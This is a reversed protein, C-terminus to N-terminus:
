GHQEGPQEKPLTNEGRQKGELLANPKGGRSAAAIEIAGRVSRGPHTAFFYDRAVKPLMTSKLKENGSLREDTYAVGTQHTTHEAADQRQAKGPTWPPSVGSVCLTRM